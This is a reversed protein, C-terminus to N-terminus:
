TLMLVGVSWDCANVFENM